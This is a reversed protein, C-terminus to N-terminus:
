LELSALTLPSTAHSGSVNTRPHAAITPFHVKLLKPRYQQDGGTKDESDACRTPVWRVALPECVQLLLFFNLMADADRLDHKRM